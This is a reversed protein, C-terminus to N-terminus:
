ILGHSVTLRHDLARVSTLQNVGSVCLLQTVLNMPLILFPGPIGYVGINSSSFAHFGRIVDSIFFMFVPLSLMHKVIMAIQAIYKPSDSATSVTYFVGEKWCPGYKQYTHEQLLGLVGTLLLSATLMAIGRFYDGGSHDHAATSPRALTALIVGVTVLMVSTKPVTLASM